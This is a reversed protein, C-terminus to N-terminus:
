CKGSNQVLRENAVIMSLARETKKPIKLIKLGNSKGQHGQDYGGWEGGRQEDEGLELHKEGDM